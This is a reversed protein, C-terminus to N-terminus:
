GNIQSNYSYCAVDFAVFWHGAKPYPIYHTLKLSNNAHLTLPNVCSVRSGRLPVVGQQLCVTVEVDEGGGAASQNFNSLAAFLRLSGGTDRMSQLSFSTVLPGSQDSINLRSTAAEDLTFTMTFLSYIDETRQLAAPMDVPWSADLPITLM